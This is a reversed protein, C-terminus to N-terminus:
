EIVNFSNPTSIGRVEKSTIQRSSAKIGNGHPDVASMEAQGIIGLPKDKMNLSPVIEIQFIAEASANEGLSPIDWRVEQTRANYVPSDSTGLVKIRGTWRFGPGLNGVTVINKFESKSGTIKWHLTYQTVKGIRPPIEGQNVIDGDPENFYADQTFGLTGAVTQTFQALGITEKASVSPLVTPSTLRVRIMLEADASGTVNGIKVRFQATGQAHPQLMTLDKTNSGNWVITREADQVYGETDISSMVFGKGVLEAELIADRMVVDSDNAYTIKYSVADGDYVQAGENQPAISVKLPSPVISVGVNKSGIEFANNQLSIKGTVQIPLYAYEKGVMYGTIIAAGESRPALDKLVLTKGGDLIPDSGTLTFGDPFVIGIQAGSVVEDTTNQYRVHIEFEEGNFAQEPASVDFALVPDTAIVSGSEKKEFRNSLTSAEYGYSAIADMKYTQSASGVIVVTFTAKLTDQANMDSGPFEEVRKQPDDVFRINDPLSLAIKPAVLKKQSNNSFSVTVEFAKGAPVSSPVSMQVQVDKVSFYQYLYYGAFGLLVLVIAVLSGIIKRGIGGAKKQINEILPATASGKDWPNLPVASSSIQADASETQPAPAKKGRDRAPQQGYLERELDQLSMISLYLYLGKHM